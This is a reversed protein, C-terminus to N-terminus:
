NPHNSVWYIPFYFFTGFWWGAMIIRLKDAGAGHGMFNWLVIRNLDWLYIWINECEFEWYIVTFNWHKGNMNGIYEWEYEWYKGDLDWMFGM